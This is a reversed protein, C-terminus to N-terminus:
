QTERKLKVIQKIFENAERLDKVPVVYKQDDILTMPLKERWNEFIAKNKSTVIKRAKSTTNWTKYPMLNFKANSESVNYPSDDVFILVDSGIQKRNSDPTVLNIRILKKPLDPYFQGLRQKKVEVVEPSYANSNISVEVDPAVTNLIDEAGPYFNCDTYYRSEGFAKLISTKEDDTFATNDTICFDTQVRDSLGLDHMVLETLGWIVDDVDYVIRIPDTVQKESEDFKANAGQDTSGFGGQRQGSADDDDITLFKQFCVQAIRDGKKIHLDHDSVNFVVLYFHGDNTPNEYYDADILGVGNGMVIGKGAGSSRNSIWYCEDPQCYAKLGTPILTPGIGPRFMPVTIDEAAAIDYGAAHATSRRPLEIGRNEWGKAIEFGRKRM